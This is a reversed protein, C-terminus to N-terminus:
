GSAREDVQAELWGLGGAGRDVERNIQGGVWGGVRGSLRGAEQAVKEACRVALGGDMQGCTQKRKDDSLADTEANM